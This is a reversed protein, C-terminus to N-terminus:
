PPRHRTAVTAAPPAGTAAIRRRTASCRAHVRDQPSPRAPARPRPFLDVIQM